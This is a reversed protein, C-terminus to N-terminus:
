ASKYAYKELVPVVATLEPSMYVIIDGNQQVSLGAQLAKAFAKDTTMPRIATQIEAKNESKVAYYTKM